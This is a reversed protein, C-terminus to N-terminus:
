TKPTPTAPPMTNRSRSEAVACRMAFGHLKYREGLPGRMRITTHQVPEAAHQWRRREDATDLPGM